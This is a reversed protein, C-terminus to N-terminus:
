GPAQDARRDPASADSTSPKTFNEIIFKWVQDSITIAKSGLTSRADPDAHDHGAHHPQEAPEERGQAGRSHVREVRHPGLEWGTTYAPRRVGTRRRYEIPTLGASAKFVRHFYGRNSFGSLRSVGDIGLETGRLM